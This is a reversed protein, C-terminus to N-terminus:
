KYYSEYVGETLGYDIPILTLDKAGRDVMAYNAPHRFDGIIVESDAGKKFLVNALSALGKYQTYEEATSTITEIYLDALEKRSKVKLDKFDKIIALVDFINQISNVELMSAINKKYAYYDKDVIKKLYDMFGTKIVKKSIGRNWDSFYQKMDYEDPSVGIETELCINRIKDYAFIEPFCDEDKGYKQVIGYEAKNQAVGAEKIAVKFCIPRDKAEDCSGKPICFAVRSSGQGVFDVAIGKMYSMVKSIKDVERTFDKFSLPKLDANAEVVKGSKLVDFAKKPIVVM